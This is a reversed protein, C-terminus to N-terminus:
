LEEEQNTRTNYVKLGRVLKLRDDLPPFSLQGRLDRAESFKSIVFGDEPKKAELSSMKDNRVFYANNGNSNCGIFSYGLEGALDYLSLLSTGYYLNSYHSKSRVFDAQYPITWPNTSGFVSNYEVIVVIPKVVDIAKWVWYDNGDIDISLLGIEGTFKRAILDNINDRTIFSCIATLDYKWSLERRRIANVNEISADVILGSWNSTQLLFRTNCETYDEVGFEVFTRNTITLHNVLFDIIGDDGWQSFVKFEALHINETILEVRNSLNMQGLIKGQLTMSTEMMASTRDDNATQSSNKRPFLRSM